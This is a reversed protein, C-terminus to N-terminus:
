QQLSKALNKSTDTKVRNTKKTVSGLTKFLRLAAKGMDMPRRRSWWSALEEDTLSKRILVM